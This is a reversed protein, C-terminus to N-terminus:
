DNVQNILDRISDDLDEKNRDLRHQALIDANLKAKKELLKENKKILKEQIKENASQLYQSLMGNRTSGFGEPLIMEKLEYTTEAVSEELDYRQSSWSTLHVDERKGNIADIFKKFKGRSIDDFLVHISSEAGGNMYKQSHFVLDVDYKECFHIADPNKKFADVLEKAQEPFKEYFGKAKVSKLATFHPNTNYTNMPYSNRNSVQMVQM